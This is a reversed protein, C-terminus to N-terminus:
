IHILSLTQDGIWNDIEQWIEVPANAIKNYVLDILQRNANYYEDFTPPIPGDSNVEFKKGTYDVIACFLAQASETHKPSDAM